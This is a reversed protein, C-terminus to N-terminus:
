PILSIGSIFVADYLANYKVVGLSTFRLYRATTLGINLTQTNGVINGAFVGKNVWTTGNMSTEVQISTPYGGLVPYNLATPLYYNLALFTVDKNFNISVWQPMLQTINSAWYTTANNDDLITAPALTGNQSSFGAITWGVKSAFLPKGTKFVFYIVRSTAVGEIKGDVSKIVVPLVYTSYEILKLQQGINLQASDSVSSGAAIRADPKFFLYSSTPLLLATSGYKARYETIKNTDVAFNVWHDGSSVTGGLAAKIGLVIASDKLISLPMEITDKSLDQLFSISGGPLPAPAKDKSCAALLVIVSFIIVIKFQRM